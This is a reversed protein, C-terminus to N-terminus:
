LNVVVEADERLRDVLARAAEARAQSTLREVVQERVQALPPLKQGEAGASEQQAAMKDYFARVERDTPEVDGAEDAILRDVTVQVRVQSEVEDRDLGQEELVDLMSDVSDLGNQQALVQLTKEVEADSVTVGREGAEQVLLETSVLNEVVTQKLKEEDVPQGSAQAQQALQRYQGEYMTAFESRPIEEGNVEAVVEPVDDLDPGSPDDKQEQVADPGASGADAGEGDSGGCASAGALLAVLLLALM